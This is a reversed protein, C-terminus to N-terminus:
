DEQSALEQGQQQELPEQVLRQLTISIDRIVEKQSDFDLGRARYLLGLRQSVKDALAELESSTRLIM